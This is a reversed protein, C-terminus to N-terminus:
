LVSADISLWECVIHQNSVAVIDYYQRVVSLNKRKKKSENVYIGTECCKKYYKHSENGELCLTSSFSKSNLIMLPLYFMTWCTPSVNHHILTNVYTFLSFFLCENRFGDMDKNVLFHKTMGNLFFVPCLELDFVSIFLLYHSM